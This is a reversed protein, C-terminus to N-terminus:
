PRLIVWPAPECSNVSHSESPQTRSPPRTTASETISIQRRGPATAGRRPAVARAFHGPSIGRWQKFATSFSPAGAYGMRYAVDEVTLGGALLEEALEGYTQSCLGRYSTGEEALRRRLTRLSMHLLAAMEEQGVREGMRRLLVERVTGAIGHRLGRRHLLQACQQEFLRATLPSAQPLPDEFGSTDFVVLHPGVGDVCDLGYEDILPQLRPRLGGSVSGRLVPAPAHYVAAWNALLVTVDRELLFGRLEAPVDSDDAYLHLEDDRYVHWIRAFTTTMRIYRMLLDVASRVTPSALLALGLAGYSTVHTRAGAALGLGPPDGLATVINRVLALEQAATVEGDPTNLLAPDIGTGRLCARVGLGHDAAVEVLVASLGVTRRWEWTMATM